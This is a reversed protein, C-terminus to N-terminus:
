RVFSGCMCCYHSGLRLQVDCHVDSSLRVTAITTGDIESPLCSSDLISSENAEDEVNLALEEECKGTDEECKGTNAASVSVDNADEGSLVAPKTDFNEISLQRSMHRKSFRRLEEKDTKVIAEELLSHIHQRVQRVLSPYHVMARDLSERTLVLM